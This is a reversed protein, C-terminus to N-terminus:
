ALYAGLVMAAGAGLIASATFLGFQWDFFKV